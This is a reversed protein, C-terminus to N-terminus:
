ILAIIIGAGTLFLGIITRYKSNKEKLNIRYDPTLKTLNINYYPDNEIYKKWKKNLVKIEKRFRPNQITEVGRSASEYHYLKAHPTYINKYGKDLLKLCFDVDNLGVKFNEEDLGKVEFFKKRQIMACAFTIASVNRTIKHFGFYGQSLINLGRFAHDAAGCIGIVVGAHQITSNPYILQAGVAGVEKKTAEQLMREIWDKSIIETDDNLFLLYEANSKKAANNCLKSFNFPKTKDIIFDFKYPYKKKYDELMDFTRISFSNDIVTIKYNTYSTKKLISNICQKVLKLKPGTPIIIEVTPNKTLSYKIQWLGIPDLNIVEAKIQNRKLYDELARKAAKLAYPKAKPNKATSTDTARWYYLIKPIHHINKTKETVRLVLDYDQSGDYEKRLYGIEEVLKKRYVSFHCIYNMSLLTEPSFDPKFFYDFKDEFNNTKAEDSYILDLGKNKNLAFVVEFLADKQLLDDNDLFGIFEGSSIKIAQNSAESIGQNKELFKIKINPHNLSKLYKLVDKKSSHDDALCLEWNTYSQNIVSKVCEQLEELKPNYVPTIISIKPNFSFKSPNIKNPSEKQSTNEYIFFEKKKTQYFYKKDPTLIYLILSNKGLKINSFPVNALFGSKLYDKKAHANSVDLREIGTKAKIMVGNLEIFVAGAIKEEIFDVAWGYLLIPKNKEIFFENQEDFRTNNLLDINWLTKQNTEKANITENKSLSFKKIIPKSEQKYEKFIYNKLDLVM